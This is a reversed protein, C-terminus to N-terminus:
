HGNHIRSSSSSSDDSSNTTPLFLALLSPVPGDLPRQEELVALGAWALRAAQQSSARLVVMGLDWECRLCPQLLLTLLLPILIREQEAEHTDLYVYRISRSHGHSFAGAKGQRCAARLYLM